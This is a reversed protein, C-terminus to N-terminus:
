PKGITKWDGGVLYKKRRSVCLAPHVLESDDSCPEDLEAAGSLPHWSPLHTAAGPVDLTAVLPMAM